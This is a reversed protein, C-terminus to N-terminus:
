GLFISKAETVKDFGLIDCIQDMEEVTFSSRGTMRSSMTNKSIGLRDALDKQSMSLYALRSRIVNTKVIM